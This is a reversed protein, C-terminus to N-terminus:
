KTTGYLAVSEITNAGGGASFELTMATNATGENWIKGKIVAAMSGAVAPLSIVGGDLLTGGGSAGDILKWNVQVAAPASSGAALSVSFGTCINKVGVGATAQTITAQTNAAPFHSTKWMANSYGAQLITLTANQISVKFFHNVSDWVDALIKNLGRLKASVTGDNDGTVAADTTTGEAVDSGDAITVAGGGGGGGGASGASVPASNLVVQATGSTWATAKVKFFRFGAISGAWVGNATATTVATTGNSASVNGTQWTNGDVSIQFSLTGTWTGTVQVGVAGRNTVEAIVEQNVAAIATSPYSM